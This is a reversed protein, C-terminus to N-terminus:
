YLGTNFYDTVMFEAMSPDYTSFLNLALLIAAAAVAISGILFKKYVKEFSVINEDAEDEKIKQMVNETFDKAPLKIPTTKLGALLEDINDENYIKKDAKIRSIVSSTFDAKPEVIEQYPLSELMDDVKSLDYSEDFESSNKIRDMIKSTFNDCATTEQIKLSKLLTEINEENYNKKM